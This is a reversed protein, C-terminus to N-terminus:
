VYLYSCMCLIIVYVFNYPTFRSSQGIKFKNYFRNKKKTFYVFISLLFFMYITISLINKLKKGRSCMFSCLVAITIILFIKHLRNYHSVNQERYKKVCARFYRFVCHIYVCYIFLTIIYYLIINHRSTRVPIFSFFM